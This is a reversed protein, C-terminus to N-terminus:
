RKNFNNTDDWFLKDYMFTYEFKLFYILLKVRLVVSNEM